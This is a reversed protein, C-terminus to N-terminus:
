ISLYEPSIVFCRQPIPYTLWLGSHRVPNGTPRGSPPGPPWGITDTISWSLPHQRASTCCTNFTLCLANGDSTNALSPAHVHSLSISLSCSLSQGQSNRGQEKAGVTPSSHLPSFISGSFFFILLVSCGRMLFFFLFCFLSFGQLSICLITFFQLLKKFLSDSPSLLSVPLSAAYYSFLLNSDRRRQDLSSWIYGVFCLCKLAVM